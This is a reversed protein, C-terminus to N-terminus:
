IGFLILLIRILVVVGLALLGLTVALQRLPQRREQIARIQEAELAQRNLEVRALAREDPGLEERRALAVSTGPSKRTLTVMGQEVSGERLNVRAYQGHGLGVGLWPWRGFELEGLVREGFDLTAVRTREALLMVILEHDGRRFACMRGNASCVVGTLAREDPATWLPEVASLASDVWVIADGRAIVWGEHGWALGHLPRGLALERPGPRDLRTVILRGDLTGLALQAGGEGFCGCSVGRQEFRRLIKGRQGVIAGNRHLIAWTDNHATLLGIAEVKCAITANLDGREGFWKFTGREDVAFVDRSACRVGVIGRERLEVPRRFVGTPQHGLESRPDAYRHSWTPGPGNTMRVLVRPGDATAILRAHDDCAFPAITQRAPAEIDTEVQARDDHELRSEARDPM